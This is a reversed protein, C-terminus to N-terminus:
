RSPQPKGPGPTRRTTMLYHLPREDFKNVADGIANSTRTVSETASKIERLLSDAHLADKDLQDATKRFQTLVDGVTGERKSQVDVLSRINDTAYKLNRIIVSLQSTLSDSGPQNLSKAVSSLSDTLEELQTKNHADKTVAINALTDITQTGLDKIKALTEDIGPLVADLKTARRGIIEEGDALPKDIASQKKSPPLGLEVSSEGLLTPMLVAQVSSPVMVDRTVRIHVVVPYATGDPVKPDPDYDVSQVNGVRIGLFTVTSRPHIGTADDFRITFTKKAPRFPNEEVGYYLVVGLLVILGISIILSIAITLIKRTM